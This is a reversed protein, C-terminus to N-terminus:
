RSGCFRLFDALGSTDPETLVALWVSCDVNEAVRRLPFFAWTVQTQVGLGFEELPRTLRDRVLETTGEFNLVTCGWSRFSSRWNGRLM